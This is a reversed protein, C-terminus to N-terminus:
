SARRAGIEQLHDFYAQHQDDWLHEPCLGDATPTRTKVTCKPMACEVIPKATLTYRSLMRCYRDHTSPETAQGCDKCIPM